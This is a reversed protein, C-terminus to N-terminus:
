KGFVIDINQKSSYLCWHQFCYVIKFKGNYDALKIQETKNGNADIWHKFFSRSYGTKYENQVVITSLVSLATPKVGVVGKVVTTTVVKKKKLTTTTKKAEPSPAAGSSSVCGVTVALALAPFVILSRQLRRSVKNSIKM